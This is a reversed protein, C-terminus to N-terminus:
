GNAQKSKQVESNVWEYLKRMGVELPQTPKWGLTQQVFENNSNRGVVGTTHSPVNKIKIDKGSFGIVMKALDNVSIAEDSGINVPTHIDAEMLKIIGDLAEEIWLYSRMASGDGNIEIEGGDECSAVKFSCASPFKERGNKYVAHTSFVNHLIGMCVNLNNNRRFSDYIDQAVLKEVGYVSDPKGGKWLYSEKLSASNVEKQLDEGFACASSSFFVKGVGIESAIKAAHLNMLTSNYIIESDNSGDFVYLSGGMEAQLFFVWDFKDDTLTLAARVNNIDRLDAMILQDCKTEAFENYKRDVCRVWHGMTKLRACLANGITGTGGAVLSKMQKM